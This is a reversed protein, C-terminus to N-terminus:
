AYIKTALIFIFYIDLFQHIFIYDKFILAKWLVQCSIELIQKRDRQENIKVSM